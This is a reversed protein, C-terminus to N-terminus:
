KGMYRDYATQYIEVMRDLGMNKLQAVFATYEKEVGGSVIWAAAQQKAATHIDSRLFALESTEEATMPAPPYYEKPYYPALLAKDLRVQTYVVDFFKADLWDPAYVPGNDNIAYMRSWAEVDYGSGEPPATMIYRDGEQALSTGLPGYYFQIGPIPDYFCDIWRM